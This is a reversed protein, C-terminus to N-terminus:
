GARAGAGGGPRSRDDLHNAADHNAADHNAPDHHDPPRHNDVGAAGDDLDLDDLDLNHLDHGAGFDVLYAGARHHEHHDDERHRVRCERWRLRLSGGPRSRHSRRPGSDAAGKPQATM